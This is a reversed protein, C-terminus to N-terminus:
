TSIVSRRRRTIPQRYMACRLRVAYCDAACLFPRVKGLAAKRRSSSGVGSSGQNERTDHETNALSTEVGNVINVPPLDGGAYQESMELSTAQAWAEFTKIVTAQDDDTVFRGICCDSVDNDFWFVWYAGFNNDYESRGLLLVDDGLSSLDAHFPDSEHFKALEAANMSHPRYRTILFASLYPRVYNIWGNLYTQSIYCQWVGMPAPDNAVSPYDESDAFYRLMM